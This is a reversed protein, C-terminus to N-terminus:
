QQKDIASKLKRRARQLANDISKETMNLEKAIVAYSKGSLFLMLVRNETDSLLLSMYRYIMNMRDRAFVAFEPEYNSDAAMEDDSLASYDHFARNKSSGHDRAVSLIRNGICVTAYTKFTAGAEPSYTRVANFLAMYGEQLLDEFDVGKTHALSAKAAIIGEYEAAISNFAASDGERALVLLRETDVAASGNNDQSDRM